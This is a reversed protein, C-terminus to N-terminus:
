SVVNLQFRITLCPLCFHSLSCCWIGDPKHANCATQPWLCAYHWQYDKPLTIEPLKSNVSLAGLTVLEPLQHLPSCSEKGLALRAQLLIGKNSTNLAYPSGLTLPNQRPKPSPRRKQNPGLQFAAPKVRLGVGSMLAEKRQRIQMKSYMKRAKCIDSM